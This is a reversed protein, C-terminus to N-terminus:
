WCLMSPMLFQAVSVLYAHNCCSCSTDFLTGPGCSKVVHSGGGGSGCQVFTECTPDDPNALLSGSNQGSCVGNNNGGGLTTCLGFYLFYYFQCTKHNNM